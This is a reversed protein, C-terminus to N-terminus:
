LSNNYKPIPQRNLLCVFWGWINLLLLTQQVCDLIFRPFKKELLKGEEERDGRM